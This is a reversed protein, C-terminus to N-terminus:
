ISIRSVALFVMIMTFSSDVGLQVGTDVIFVALGLIFFAVIVFGLALAYSVLSMVRIVSNGSYYTPWIYLSITTISAVVFLVFAYCMLDINGRSASSIPLTIFGIISV